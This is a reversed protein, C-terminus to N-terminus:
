EIAQDAIALLAPPMTIGLSKAAKLNVIFEFKTPQQVPLEALKAGTLVRDVYEASRRFIDATDPWYAM